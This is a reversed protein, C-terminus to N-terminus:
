FSITLAAYPGATTLNAELDDIDLDITFSRYGGHIDIFPFPTYSIDGLFEIVTNGDYGLGTAQVRLELIDALLGIHLNAGVMPVPATIDVEEKDLDSEIAATIDFYKVKGVLGLSGGALFNELNILDYQYAFDMVTYELSSDVDTGVTFTEDGFTINEKLTTSGSYDAKYYTLSLHHKGAGLFVEGMPYSESDMGLDDELDLKTGTLIEGSYTVDGSLGPMWYYGRVGAEFASAPAAMVALGLILGAIIIAKRM